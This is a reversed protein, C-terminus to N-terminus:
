ACLDRPVVATPSRVVGVRTPFDPPFLVLSRDREIRLTLHDRQEFLGPTTLCPVNQIIEAM